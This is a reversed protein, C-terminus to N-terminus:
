SPRDHTGQARVRWLSGVVLACAGLLVLPSLPHVQVAEVPHGTVLLWLATGLGCGWCLPVSLAHLACVSSWGLVKRTVFWVLAVLLLVWPGGWGGLVKLPWVSRRPTSPECSRANHPQVPM